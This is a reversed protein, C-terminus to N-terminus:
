LASTASSANYRAEGKAPAGALIGGVVGHVRVTLWMQLSRARLRTVAEDDDDFRLDRIEQPSGAVPIFVARVIPDRYVTIRDGSDLVLALYADTM